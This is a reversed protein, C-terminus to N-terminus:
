SLGEFDRIAVVDVVLLYVALHVRSLHQHEFCVQFGYHLEDEVHM